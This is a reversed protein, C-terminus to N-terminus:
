GNQGDYWTMMARVAPRWIGLILKEIESAESETLWAMDMEGNEDPGTKMIIANGVIPDGHDPTGYLYSALPNLVPREKCKGDEDIVIIYGEPLLDSGIVQVTECGIADYLTQLMPAQEPIAVREIRVYDVALKVVYKM